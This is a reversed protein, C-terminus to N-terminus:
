SEDVKLHAKIAAILKARRTSLESSKVPDGCIRMLSQPDFPEGHLVTYDLYRLCDELDSESLRAIKLRWYLELNPRYISAKKEKHVLILKNEWDHIKHLFFAGAQNIAEVPLGLSQSIEMLSLIEAQTATQPGAVDIDETTRASINLLHLVSGGIIVWSGSLRSAASKVFKSMIEPTVSM